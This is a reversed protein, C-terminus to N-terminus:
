YRLTSAWKSYKEDYKEIKAELEDEVDFLDRLDKIYENSVNSIHIYGAVEKGFHSFTINLFSKSINQVTVKVVEGIEPPKKSALYYDQRKGVSLAAQLGQHIMIKWEDSLILSDDGKYNWRYMNLRPICNGIFSVRYLDQMIQMFKTDIVTGEYLMKIREKLQHISFVAKFGTFFSIILEIEETSYLARLEERIEELSDLSYQKRLALFAATSFCTSESQLSSQATLILRVVDRPKCWSNNLVYSAPDIDHINDPFWDEIIEKDNRIIEEGESIGIRKLLIQMIPHAFSNTNDYNWKLPVEFGSIAKNLEKTVINRSISNIIETRVSCIIKTNRMDSSSFISNFRKVTFILDRILYLDRQFVSPEGYYAELEDVFIHYPVDTRTVESLAMEASDIVAIFKDLNGETGKNQFDINIEPAVSEGTIQNSMPLALKVSAPIICKKINDPGKINNVLGVFKEWQSNKVFLGGNFFEDDAVIRKMFLWRWIYEFDSNEVLTDNNISISALLRKSFCELESKKLDTFDEKFFIFSSCSIPDIEKMENDLYFLLATKGTGKYGTIFFRNGKLLLDLNFSKPVVFVKLFDEIGEFNIEDKADPKGAYIDKIKIKGM